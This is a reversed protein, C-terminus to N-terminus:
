SKQLDWLSRFLGGRSLLTQPDGYEVVKGGQLVVIRDFDAVTKLRHAVAVVTWEAFEKRILTQILDDTQHDLSNRHTIIVM